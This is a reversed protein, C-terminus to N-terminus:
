LALVLGTPEHDAVEDDVKESARTLAHEGNQWVQQLSHEHAHLRGLRRTKQLAQDDREGKQDIIVTIGHEIKELRCANTFLAAQTEIHDKIRPCLISSGELAKPRHPDTSERKAGQQARPPWRQLSDNHLTVNDDCSHCFVTRTGREEHLM